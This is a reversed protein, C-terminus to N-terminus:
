LVWLDLGAGSINILAMESPGLWSLIDGTSTIQANSFKKVDLVENVKVSGIERLAPISYARASGDGFLGIIAYGMDEFRCIAAADCFVNDWTRNAGKNTAPRFVRVGTMTVVVLVGNVQVGNRLGAVASQSAYAPSGTDANQPHIRIVRDDITVAGAFQVSYRGSPDPLVRFTALHGLNTGAHLLISSFEDGEATMVQLFYTLPSCFGYKTISPKLFSKSYNM